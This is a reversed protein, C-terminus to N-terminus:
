RDNHKSAKRSLGSRRAQWPISRGPSPPTAPLSVASATPHPTRRRPPQGGQPTGTHWWNRWTTIPQTTAAPMSAKNSKARNCRRHSAQKNDLTDAGGLDVAIIHDVEFSDPHPTRLTYDIPDGCLACPDRRARITSRHRDRTATNRGTSM